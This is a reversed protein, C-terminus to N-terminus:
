NMLKEIKWLSIDPSFKSWKTTDLNKRVYVNISEHYVPVILSESILRLGIESIIRNKVERDDSAYLKKLLTKIYKQNEGLMILPRISNFTVKLSDTLDIASFDNNVQILAYKNKTRILKAYEKFNDYTTLDVKFGHNLLAKSIKATMLFKSSFLLSIRSNAASKTKVNKVNKIISYANEIEKASPRGHGEELYLQTAKYKTSSEIVDSDVISKIITQINKRNEQDATVLNTPNLTIWFTFGIPPKIAIYGSSIIAKHELLSLNENGWYVQMDHSNLDAPLKKLDHSNWFEASKPRKPFASNKTNSEVTFRGDKAKTLSYYGSTVKFAQENIPALADEISLISFEPHELSFIFNPDPEKLVIEVEFSSLSRVMKIKRFDFHVTKKRNPRKFSSVVDKSTIQTGDSFYGDSKLKFVFRTHDDYIKWASALDGELEGSSSTNVLRRCLHELVIYESFSNVSTTEVVQPLNPLAYRFVKTDQAGFLTAGPLFYLSIFTIAFFIKYKILSILVKNLEGM